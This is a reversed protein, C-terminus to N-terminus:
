GEATRVTVGAARLIAVTADFYARDGRFEVLGGPTAGISVLGEDVDFTVLVEPRVDVIRTHTPSDAIAEGRQLGYGAIVQVKRAQLEALVAGTPLEDPHVFLRGGDFAAELLTLRPSSM